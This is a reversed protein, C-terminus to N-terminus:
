ITSARCRETEAVIKTEAVNAAQCARHNVQMMPWSCRITKKINNWCQTAQKSPMNGTHHLTQLALDPSDFM